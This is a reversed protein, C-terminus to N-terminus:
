NENPEVKKKKKRDASSAKAPENQTKGGNQKSAAEPRASSKEAAEKKMGFEAMVDMVKDFVLYPSNFIFSFTEGLAITEFHVLDAIKKELPMESFEKKFKERID